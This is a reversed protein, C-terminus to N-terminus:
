SQKEKIYFVIPGVDYYHKDDDIWERCMGYNWEVACKGIWREAEERSDFTYMLEDEYANYVTFM